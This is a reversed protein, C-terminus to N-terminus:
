DMTLKGENDVLYANNPNAKEYKVKISNGVIAKKGTNVEILSKTKYGIPLFGLLINRERVMVLNEVLTYKQNDVEYEVVIRTPFDIGNVKLEKIVGYCVNNFNKKRM